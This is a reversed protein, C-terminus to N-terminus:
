RATIRFHGRVADFNDSIECVTLANKPASDTCIGICIKDGLAIKEADLAFIRVTLESTIHRGADDSGTKQVGRACANEFVTKEWVDGCRKYVTVPTLRM